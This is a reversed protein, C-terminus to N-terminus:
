KLKLADLVSDPNIPVPIIVTKKATILKDTIQLNVGPVLDAAHEKRFALIRIENVRDSGLYLLDTRAVFAVGGVEIVNSGNSCVLPIYVDDAKIFLMVIVPSSSDSDQKVTGTLVYHLPNNVPDKQNWKINVIFNDTTDVKTDLFQSAYQEYDVAEEQETEESQASAGNSASETESSIAQITGPTGPSSVNDKTLSTGPATTGTDTTAYATVSALGLGLLLVLLFILKKAM